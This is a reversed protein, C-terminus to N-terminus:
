QGFIFLGNNVDSIFVNGSPSLAYVGFAGLFNGKGSVDPDTDFEFILEPESSNAIDFIRYGASYYSFYAKNKIIHVNHITSELDRFKSLFIPNSKDSINWITFDDGLEASGASREDNIILITEDENVWGSHHFRILNSHIISLLTPNFPDSIDYINTGEFGHFDYLTNSLIAGEHGSNTVVNWLLKPNVPDDSLDYIWLGPDSLILLNDCTIFINHAGPFDGVIDPSEPNEINVINGSIEAVGNVCYMYNLHTKIDRGGVNTISSSIFPVEPNSVNVIHVGTTEDLMGEEGFGVLMYEHSGDRYGWLDNIPNEFELNSILNVAPMDSFQDYNILTCNNDIPDVENDKSCSIIFILPITLIAIILNKMILLKNM